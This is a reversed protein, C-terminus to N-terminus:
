KILMIEEFQSPRILGSPEWALKARGPRSQHCLSCSIPRTVSKLSAPPKPPPHSPPTLLSNSVLSAPHPSHTVDWEVNGTEKNALGATEKTVHLMPCFFFVYPPCVIWDTQCINDFIAPLIDRGLMGPPSINNWGYSSCLPALETRNTPASLCSSPLFLCPPCPLFGRHCLPCTQSRPLPPGSSM